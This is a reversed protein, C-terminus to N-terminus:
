ASTAALFCFWHPARRPYLLCCFTDKLVCNCILIDVVETHNGTVAMELTMRSNILLNPNVGFNCLHHDVMMANGEKAYNVLDKCNTNHNSFKASHLLNMLGYNKLDIALQFLEQQRDKPYVLKMLLKVAEENGGRIAAEM